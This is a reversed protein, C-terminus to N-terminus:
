SPAISPLSSPLGLSLLRDDLHRIVAHFGLEGYSDIVAAQMVLYEAETADPHPIRVSLDGNIKLYSDYNDATYSVMVLSGEYPKGELEVVSVHPDLCNPFPCRSNKCPGARAGEPITSWAAVREAHDECRAM